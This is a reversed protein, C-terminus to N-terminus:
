NREATLQRVRLVTRRPELFTIPGTVGHYPPHGPTGLAQLWRRIAARSTHGERVAQAILMFADHTMAQGPTPDRGTEARTRQVFALSLSDTGPEWTVVYGLARREAASLANRPLESPDFADAALIRIAPALAVLTRVACLTQATSLAVIVVDPTARRLLARTISEMADREGQHCERGALAADGTLRQSRASFRARVGEHIGVGFADAVYLMAVRAGKLSDIAYDALFAGEVDDPPSLPFLHERADRLLRSTATPVIVPVGAAGYIPSALLTSKSGAHGVVAVVRPDSAFREAQGTESGEANTPVVEWPVITLRPLATSDLM